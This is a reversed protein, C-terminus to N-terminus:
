DLTLDRNYRVALKSLRYFCFEYPRTRDNNHTELVYVIFNTLHSDIKKPKYIEEFYCKINEETIYNNVIKFNDILEKFAHNFSVGEGKWILCFHNIFFFCLMIEKQLRDLFFEKVVYYGLNINNARRFPQIRAKTTFNSQQGESRNFDLYQEKYYLGTLSNICKNFCFGKKKTYFM